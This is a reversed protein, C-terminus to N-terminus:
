STPREHCGLARQSIQEPSWRNLLAMNAQLAAYPEVWVPTLELDREYVDLNLANWVDRGSTKRGAASDAVHTRFYTTVMCFVAGPERAPRLEVVRLLNDQVSTGTAACEEALERALAVQASEGPEIGGGPFKFDGQRSRLMLHRGADDVVVAKAAHREVRQAPELPLGHSRLEIEVTM